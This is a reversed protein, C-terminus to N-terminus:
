KERLPTSVTSRIASTWFLIANDPALAPGETFSGDAWLLELKAGPPVIRSQATPLFGGAGPLTTQANVKLAILLFFVVAFRIFVRRCVVPKFFPTFTM